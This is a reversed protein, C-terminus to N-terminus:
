QQIYVFHDWIDIQNQNLGTGENGLMFLTDGKFPAKHVPEAGEIIEIGCISINNQTWYESVETLCDFFRFTTHRVTGQNGFCGLKNQKAWLLFRLSESLLQLDSSDALTRKSVLISIFFTASQDDQIKMQQKSRKSKKLKVILSKQNYKWKKIIKIFWIILMWYSKFNNLFILNLPCLVCFKIM